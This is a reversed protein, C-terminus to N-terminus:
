QKEDFMKKYENYANESCFVSEEGFANKIVIFKNTVLKHIDEQSFM